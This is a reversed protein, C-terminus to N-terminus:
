GCREGAPGRRPRRADTRLREVLAALDGAPDASTPHEAVVSAPVVLPSVVRVLADRDVTAGLM